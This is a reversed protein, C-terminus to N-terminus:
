VIIFGKLKLGKPNEDFRYSLKKVIGSHGGYNSNGEIVEYGKSTVKSVIGTHGKASNNLSQWIIVAGKKPKDSIKFLGSKDNKFNSWTMQTSGSLLKQALEKKQGSLSKLVVMKAFFACWQAGSYWGASKMLKEFRSSKFAKNSGTEEQGLFRRATSSIKNRSLFYIIVVFVIIAVFHYKYKLSNKFM